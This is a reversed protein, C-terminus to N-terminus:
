RGRRANAGVHYTLDAAADHRAGSVDTIV